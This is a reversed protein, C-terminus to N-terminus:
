RAHMRREPIVERDFDVLKGTRWVDRLSAPGRPDTTQVNFSDAVPTRTVHITKAEKMPDDATTQISHRRVRNDSRFFLGQHTASSLQSDRLSKLGHGQGNAM